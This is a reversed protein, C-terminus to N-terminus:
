GPECVRGLKLMHEFADTEVPRSYLFGQAKVVGAGRLFRAEEPSGVGEAIIDLGLAKSLKIIMQVTTRRGAHTDVGDIFSRDIKIRDALVAHLRSLSSTGVGFDDISLKIGAEHICRLNERTTSEDHISTSETIELTIRESALAHRNLLDLLFGAYDEHRLELPSANFSVSWPRDPYQESWRKLQPVLLEMVRRGVDRILGTEEAIEIMVVVPVEGRIPHRWRVLAEAGLVANDHMDVVPQYVLRLGQNDLAWRLDRELTDRESLRRHTKASFRILEGPGRGHHSNLAAEADRILSSGDHTGDDICLGLDFTINGASSDLYPGNLASLLTRGFALVEAEESFSLIFGFSLRDIRALMASLGACARLRAVLEKLIVPSHDNGAVIAADDFNRAKVVAAAGLRGRAARVQALNLEAARIMAARNPLGTQSDIHESQDLRRTLADIRLADILAQCHLALRGGGDSLLDGGCTQAYVVGVCQAGSRLPLAASYTVGEGGPQSHWCPANRERAATLLSFPLDAPAAADHSVHLLEPLATPNSREILVLSPSENLLIALRELQLTDFATTMRESLDFPLEIAAVDERYAQAPMSSTINAVVAKAGWSLYHECAAHVRERALREMGLHRYFAATRQAILGRDHLFDSAEVLQAAREFSQWATQTSGEAWALEAEILALKHAVNRPAALAAQRLAGILPELQELRAPGLRVGRDNTWLMALCWFLRHDIALLTAGGTMAYRNGTECHHLTDAVDGRHWALIASLTHATFLSFHNNAKELQPIGAQADFATGRLTLPTSTDGRLARMFQLWVLCHRHSFAHGFQEVLATHRSHTQELVQVQLLNWAKDCYLFAAYGLYEQDGCRLCDDVTQHLHQLSAGVPHRWHQIFGYALTRVKCRLPEDAVREALALALEGAAVGEHLRGTGCLTLGYNTYAIATLPSAPHARALYMMTLIVRAYMEFSTIYACPTLWVLLRLSADVRAEAVCRAPMEALTPVGPWADPPPLQVLSEGLGRLAAEGVALAEILRNRAVLGQIRLEHVRAADIVDLQMADLEGLLSDLTDFRAALYAAEAADRRLAFIQAAAPAPLLMTLALARRYYELAAGVANRARARGGSAANLAALERKESDSLSDPAARNLQHVVEFLNEDLTGADRYAGLLARGIEAHRADGEVDGVSLHAAQQVIDHMLRLPLTAIPAVEEGVLQVLGARLAPWLAQLAADPALASARAITELDFSAGLLAGTAVIERTRAPLAALQKGTLTVAQVGTIASRACQLDTRWAGAEPVHVFAQAGYLARLALVTRFPNGLTEKMLLDALDTDGDPSAVHTLRLLALMDDRRWPRVTVRRLDRKGALIRQISELIPHGVSVAESRYAGIILLHSVSPDGILGEILRLSPPDSWHIDDLVLVLPHQEDGLASLLRRIALEFRLQSAEGSLAPPEPQPGVLQALRPLFDFLAAAIGATALQIRGVVLERRSADGAQLRALVGDLAQAVAWLPRSDGFQNFKGLGILAGHRAMVECAALMVSSKGIGSLGELLVIASQGLRAVEARERTPAPEASAGNSVDGYAGVLAGIEAERGLRQMPIVFDPPPRRVADALRKGCALDAAADGAHRYGGLGADLLGVIVDLLETPIDALQEPRCAAAVVRAGVDRGLSLRQGTAVQMLLLGLGRLDDDHTLGGDGREVVQGRMFRARGFNILAVQDSPDVIVHEAVIAGHVVGSEALQSLMEALRLAVNKLRAGHVPPGAALWAPILMALADGVAWPYKLTLGEAGAALSVARPVGVIDLGATIVYHTRLRRRGAVGGPGWPACKVVLRQGAADVWDSRRVPDQPASVPPPGEFPDSM